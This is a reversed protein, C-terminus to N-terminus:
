EESKAIRLVRAGPKVATFRDIVQAAEPIAKLEGAASKWDVATSDKNNKWTALRRGMYDAEEADQMARMVDLKLAAQEAEIQEAQRQLENIRDCAAAVTTDVIVRKTARSRPWLRRADEVSQPDPAVGDLVRQWFAWGAAIMTEILEDDRPVTYIRYDSGGILVAVYCVVAGTIAMYWHPQPVYYEPIQDTGPEGWAAAAFGNATKCELLKDTTLRGDRWRVQGAIEPNVIARDVNGLMWPYEPHRLMANVRQIREGTRSAFERAVVDELVTGWYMAQENGSPQPELEGRKDLYVDLPTRWPSLGLIAAIDSGGIGRRREALWAARDNM